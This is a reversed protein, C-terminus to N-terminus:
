SALVWNVTPGLDADLHRLHDLAQRARRGVGGHRFGGVLARRCNLESSQEALELIDRELSKRSTVARSSSALFQDAVPGFRHRDLSTGQNFLVQVVDGTVARTPLLRLLRLQAAANDVTTPEHLEALAFEWDGIQDSVASFYQASQKPLLRVVEMSGALIKVGRADRNHRLGGLAVRVAALDRAEVAANLAAALDDSNWDFDDGGMSPADASSGLPVVGCKDSNLGQGLLQAQEAASGIIRWGETESSAFATVDDVWRDHLVTLHELRRDIPTLAVTGLVASLEPGTPIGRSMLPLGALLELETLLPDLAWPDCVITRLTRALAQRDITNFHDKVDLHVEVEFDGSERIQGLLERRRKQGGRWPEVRWGGDRVQLRTGSVAKGLRSSIGAAVPDFCMRLHIEALPDLSVITRHRGNAKPFPVTRPQGLRWESAARRRLCVATAAPNHKYDARDLPDPSDADSWWASADALCQAVAADSLRHEIV